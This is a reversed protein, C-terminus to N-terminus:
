RFANVVVCRKTRNHNGDIRSFIEVVTELNTKAVITRELAIDVSPVKIKDPNGFITPGRGGQELLHGKHRRRRAHQGVGPRGHRPAM